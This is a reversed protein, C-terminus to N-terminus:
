SVHYGCTLRRCSVTGYHAANRAKPSITSHFTIHESNAKLTKLCTRLSGM